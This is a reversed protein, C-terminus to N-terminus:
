VRRRRRRGVIGLVAGQAGKAVQIRSRASRACGRGRRGSRPRRGPIPRLPTSPVCPLPQPHLNRPRLLCHVVPCPSCIKGVFCCLSSHSFTTGVVFTPRGSVGQRLIVSLAFLLFLGLTVLWREMVHPTSKDLLMQFKRAYINTNEKVLEAVNKEAPLGRGGGMLPPPAYSNPQMGALGSRPPFGSGPGAAPASFSPGPAPQPTSSQPQSPPTSPYPNLNPYPADPGPQSQSPSNAHTPSLPSRVQM